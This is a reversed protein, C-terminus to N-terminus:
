ERGYLHAAEDREAAIRGRRVIMAAAPDEGTLIARHLADADDIAECAGRGAAPSNAHDADGCLIMPPRPPKAGRFPVRRANCALVSSTNALLTDIIDVCPAAARIDDAWDAAQFGNDQQSIAPRTLRAFWFATGDKWLHGFSSIPLAGTGFRGDFHLVSPDTPLQVPETTTGYIIVQGTYEAARDPELRARAVSDVGDAAIILDNVAIARDETFVTRTVPDIDTVTVEYHIEAGADCAFEALVRMLDARRYLRHMRSGLTNRSEPLYHFRLGTVPFSVAELAEHPVELEGLVDHAHRDLVLFAGDPEPVRRELVTAPREHCALAGALVTGAIGGGVITVM